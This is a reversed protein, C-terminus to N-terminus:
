DDVRIGASVTCNVRFTYPFMSSMDERLKHIIKTNNYADGWTYYILYIQVDNEDCFEIRFNDYPVDNVILFYETITEIMKDEKTDKYTPFIWSLIKNLIRTYIM